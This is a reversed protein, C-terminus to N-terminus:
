KRDLVRFRDVIPNALGRLATDEGTIRHKVELGGDEVAAVVVDIGRFDRELDGARHRELQRVRGGARDEFFRNHLDFHGRWLVEETRDAAVEVAPAALDLM